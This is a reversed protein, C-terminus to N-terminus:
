LGSMKGVLNRLMQDCMELQEKAVFENARHAQAIDGPGCIMTQFGAEAFQGAEAAYSVTGIEKNDILSTIFGIIESGDPCDLAPVDSHVIKTEIKFDPFCARNGTMVKECHKRFSELIESAKNKPIVRVDWKFSANDSIVNPAIGSQALVGAHITTHAPSFRHDIDGDKILQDMKHDLWVILKAVEHIASVESKIRSSHGASGNLTTEYICIGKQGTIPQMMSPEGILAYKPTETYYTNIDAALAPGALCGIEEDYSFAFYIPKSLNASKMAPVAALCAALFGKMDCSGRAYLNGDGKDTLVFPDTEWSQGEVPVVDMHGSLIIGGDVAPGIRCHISRKSGDENPVNKFDVNHENLYSEIWEAISINSEGGFVSFSILHKLIEVTSMDTIKESPIQEKIFYSSLITQFLNITKAGAM